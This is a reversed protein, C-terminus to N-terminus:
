PRLTQKISSIIRTSTLVHIMKFAADFSLETYVLVAVGKRDHREFLSQMLRTELNSTVRVCEACIRFGCRPLSSLLVAEPGGRRGLQKSNPQPRTVLEPSHTPNLQTRWPTGKSHHGQLWMSLHLTILM